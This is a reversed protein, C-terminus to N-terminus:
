RIAFRRKPFFFRQCFFFVYFIWDSDGTNTYFIDFTTHTRVYNWFILFCISHFLNFMRIAIPDPNPGCLLFFDTNKMWMSHGFFLLFFDLVLGMRAMWLFFFYRFFPEENYTKSYYFYIHLHKFIFWVCLWLPSLVASICEFSNILLENTAQVVYFFSRFAVFIIHLNNKIFLVNVVCHVYQTEEVM